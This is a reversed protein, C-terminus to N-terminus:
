DSSLNLKLSLWVLKFRYFITFCILNCTTGYIENSHKLKLIISLFNFFFFFRQVDSYTDGCFCYQQTAKMVILALINNKIQQQKKQKTKKKKHSVTLQKENRSM